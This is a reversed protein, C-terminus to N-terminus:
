HSEPVFMSKLGAFSQRRVIAAEVDAFGCRSTILTQFPLKPDSLLELAQDYRNRCQNPPTGVWESGVIAIERYHLDNVNIKAEPRNGFGAFLVVRGGPRCAKVCPMVMDPDGITLIVADAGKHAGAWAKAAEQWGEAPVVQEAGFERALRRRAELPEVLMV